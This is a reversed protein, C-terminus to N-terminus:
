LTHLEPRSIRRVVVFAHLPHCENAVASDRCDCDFTSASEAVRLM